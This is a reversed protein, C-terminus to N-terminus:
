QLQDSLLFQLAKDIRLHPLNVTIQDNESEIVPPRFRVFSLEPYNGSDPESPTDFLSNPNDPLDGPFIATQTKGDFVEGGIVEGKIPTGVIVPLEEGDQKVVAETTSRLAALAMVDVSAGAFKARRLANDVLKRLLAELRKHNEHHLHDAKSAAFLIREIRRTFISTLWNGQGPNFCQLIETLATELDALAEPGANIAQLADVLIIQRDLRAFYERFFPKVVFTKYAEFRKEMQDYLSGEIIDGVAPLPCFTLAPSGEMDGPMLFRGPPLTSLANEDQRCAHLYDTFVKALNAAIVEDLPEGSKTKNVLGHWRAALKIRNPLRSMELAQASWTSYDMALLPLDLLWEGPYDVIDINLKGSGFTNNWASASEYAITIRLESISSTSQPWQRKEILMALHEEYGFRPLNMSPQPEL